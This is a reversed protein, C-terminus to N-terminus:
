PLGCGQSCVQGVNIHMTAKLVVSISVSTFYITILPLISLVKIEYGVFSGFLNANAGPLGKLGFAINTLLAPAKWHQGRLPNVYYALTNTEPL